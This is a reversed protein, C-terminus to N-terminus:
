RGRESRQDNLAFDQVTDPNAVIEPLMVKLAHRKNTHTHRVEYVAGMGGAKILRVVRFFGAFVEGPLLQGIHVAGRMREALTVRSARRARGGPRGQERKFANAQVM